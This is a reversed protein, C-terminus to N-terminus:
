KNMDFSSFEIKQNTDKRWACLLLSVIVLLMVHDHKTFPSFHREMVVTTTIYTSIPYGKYEMSAKAGYGRVNGVGGEVILVELDSSSTCYPIHCDSPRAMTRTKSVRTRELLSGLYGDTGLM